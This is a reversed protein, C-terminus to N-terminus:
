KLNFKKRIEIPIKDQQLKEIQAGIIRRVVSFQGNSITVGTGGSVPVLTGSFTGEILGGIGGYKTVNVASSSGPFGDVAIYSISNHYFYM